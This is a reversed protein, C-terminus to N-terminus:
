TSQVGFTYSTGGIVMTVTANQTVPSDAGVTIGSLDATSGVNIFGISAGEESTNGALLVEDLAPVPISQIAGYLELLLNSLVLAESVTIPQNKDTARMLTAKLADLNSQISM